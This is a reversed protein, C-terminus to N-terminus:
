SDIAHFVERYCRTMILKKYKKKTELKLGLYDRIMILPIDFGAEISAIVGGGFRPNIELFYLKDNSRIFQLTIPGFLDYKSLVKKTETLIEDDDIITATTSEGGTIETRGRIVAGIFKKNRSVYADVTYEIGKIYEQFVYKSKDRKSLFIGMETKNHIVHTDKSSSGKKPKVFIPYNTTSFPILNINESSCFEFMKQKDLFIECASVSSTILNLSPFLNNLHGLIITADDVNAIVLSINKTDIISKLDDYISKDSWKKGIIVKGTAVFPVKDNLEYTFVEIDINNKEGAKIFREALSVRKAGGLFLVKFKRM